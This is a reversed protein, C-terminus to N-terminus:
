FRNIYWRGDQRVFEHRVFPRVQDQFKVLPTGAASDGNVQVKELKVFGRYVTMLLRGRPTDKFPIKELFATRQDEPVLQAAEMFRGAGMLQFFNKATAQPTAQHDPKVVKQGQDAPAPISTFVVVLVLAVILGLTKRM